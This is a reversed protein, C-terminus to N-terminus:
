AKAVATCPPFWQAHKSVRFAGRDARCCVDATSLHEFVDPTESLNTKSAKELEDATQDDQKKLQLQLERFRKRIKTMDQKFDRSSFPVLEMDAHPLQHLNGHFDPVDNPNDKRLRSQRLRPGFSPFGERAAITGQEGMTVYPLRQDENMSRWETALETFANADLKKGAANVHVFARWGGGAGRKQKKPPVAAASSGSQSSTEQFTTGSECRHIQRYSWDAGVSQIAPAWTQVSKSVVIRRTAAHRAEIAAIDLDIAAALAELAAYAEENFDPFWNRFHYTLEDYMCPPEKEDGNSGYRENILSLFLLCPFGNRASRLLHHMSCASRSILKFALVRNKVTMAVLPIARLPSTLIKFLGIFFQKVDTQLAAELIRYSRTKGKMSQKRQELEWIESSVHLCRHILAAMVMMCQKLIALRPAPHSMSWERANRKFAKNRAVWDSSSLDDDEEATQTQGQDTLRIKLPTEDYRMKEIFLVGQCRGAEIAQFVM